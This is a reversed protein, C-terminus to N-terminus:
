GTKMEKLARKPSTMRGVMALMFGAATLAALGIKTVDLVPEVRVGDASAVVVAVPRAMTRGGGGAGGGSGEQHGEEEEHSTGSGAGAGLGVFSLVEATPIITNDGVEIAEGYVRSVDANDLMDELTGEVLEMSRDVEKGLDEGNREDTM